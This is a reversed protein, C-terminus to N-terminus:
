HVFAGNYLYLKGTGEFLPRTAVALGDTGWRVVRVAELLLDRSTRPWTELALTGIRADNALDFSRVTLAWAGDNVDELCAFFAKRSAGDTTVSCHFSPGAGLTSASTAQDDVVAGADSYIRRNTPEYRIRTAQGLGPINLSKRVTLGTSDVSLVRFASFGDLAFLQTADLGWQLSADLSVSPGRRIGDDLVAISFQDVSVATTHPAGPAVQVEGFSARRPGLSWSISGTLGPLDYRTLVSGVSDEAHAYLFQGDGAVALTTPNTAAVSGVIRAQIPDFALVSNAHSPANPPVALYLLAHAPDAAIDATGQAFTRIGRGIGLGISCTVTNSSFRAPCTQIPTCPVVPNSVSVFATGLVSVLPTTIRAHLQTSSVFQTEVDVDDWRVQSSPVFGTGVVTLTFDPADLVVASPAISGVHLPADVITISRPESGYSGENTVAILAQGSTSTDDVGVTIRLRTESSFTTPQARGNWYVTAGPAFRKGVVAISTTGTPVPSPDVGFVLPTWSSSNGDCSLLAAAAMALARPTARGTAASM